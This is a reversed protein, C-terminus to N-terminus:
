DSCGSGVGKADLRWGDDFRTASREATSLLHSADRDRGFGSMGALKDKLLMAGLDTPTWSIQYVICAKNGIQTVGTVTADNFDGLKLEVSQAHIPALDTPSPPFVVDPKFDSNLSLMWNGCPKIEQASVVGSTILARDELLQGPRYNTDGCYQHGVIRVAEGIRGKMTARLESSSPDAKRLVAANDEILKLAQRRSLEGSSCGFIAVAALLLGGSLWVKRM